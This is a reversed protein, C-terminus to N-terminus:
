RAATKAPGSGICFLHKDGRLYLRGDSIAPSAYTPEGLENKAVLEFTKGPKRYLLTIPTYIAIFALIAIVIWKM